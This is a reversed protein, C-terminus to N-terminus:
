VVSPSLFTVLSKIRLLRRAILRIAAAGSFGSETIGREIWWELCGPPAHSAPVRANINRAYSPVLQFCDYASPNGAFTAATSDPERHKGYRGARRARMMSLPQVTRIVAAAVTLLGGLIRANIAATIKLRTHQPGSGDRLKHVSASQVYREVIRCFMKQANKASRRAHFCGWTKHIAGRHNSGCSELGSWPAEDARLASFVQLEHNV